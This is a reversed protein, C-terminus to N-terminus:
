RKDKRQPTIPTQQLWGDPPEGITLGHRKPEWPNGHMQYAAAIARGAQNLAYYLPLPRSAPGVNEAATLLEDFQGLAATFVRRRDQDSSARGPPTARLARIQLRDYERDVGFLQVVPHECDGIVVRGPGNGRPTARRLHRTLPGDAGGCRGWRRGVTVSFCL